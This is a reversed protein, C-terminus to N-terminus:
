VYTITGVAPLQGLSSTINAVPSTILGASAGPVSGLAAVFDALDVTYTVVGNVKSVGALIPNQTCVGGFAAAIATKVTSSAGSLGSITFDVPNAVPAVVYVLAQVPRLPFIYDAVALQDGIATVGRPDAAAVGNTGQPFGNYAAETQDMMVYVVVTGVGMGLPQCWARTVGPAALAWGLYDAVAGGQPPDAYVGLMRTRFEDQTEADAGNTFATTVAGKSNIGAIATGLTMVSSVATNGAAGAVDASANVVASGGSITVAGQVTFTTGDGRVLPARDPITGGTGSFTVQGNDAVVAAAPRVNKLAGWGYLFEDTATFPVAQKSIWDLYGLQDNALNAQAVGTIRLNSFRLLPDSGPLASQIDSAVQAKLETLTKRPYPM